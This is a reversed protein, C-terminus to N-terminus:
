SEELGVASSLHFSGIKWEGNQKRYRQQLSSAGAIRILATARPGRVRVSVVKTPRQKTGGDLERQIMANAVKQCSGPLGVANGYRTIDRQGRETLGDCIVQGQGATLFAKQVRSVLAEIQQEDSAPTTATKTGATAANADRSDKEDDGGCAALGAAITIACCAAILRPSVSLATM